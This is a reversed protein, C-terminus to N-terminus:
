ENVKLKERLMTKLVKGGANRPLQEIFEVFKPKKYSALYEGCHAIVEEETLVYNPKVVIFAKVSEGWKEDPIGVIACELISPHSYLVEEIEAPYINEGGSIIMDKKRDVVYIFGEEDAKVLDGSHFWGGRTAERTAEPNNYYGQMITPGRYVIEGVEGVPVDNMQDDVIRVEVGMIPRGVSTTKRLADDHTLSTSTPSTETQGFAESYQANKFFGMIRKKLSVPCIAAGSSCEKMSSVDYKEINPVQFLFNWMAPVLVISNIQEEEITKLVNEAEFDRHIVATGNILCNKIVTAIGAVHFMPLVILQKTYLPTGTEWLVFIRNLCLNKHSLVAGKPRGTTGSTYVIMGPDSDQLGKCPNYNSEQEFISDYTIFEHSPNQEGVVVIHRVKPINKRISDIAKVYEADVLIIESDSNNIIYELEKAVLRFNIPVGVGGALSIGFFTEVMPLGNKLLFGVKVGKHIKKEQLWGALHTARDDMQRYTLRVDGCIFAERDPTRHRARKLLEGILLQQSLEFSSTTM